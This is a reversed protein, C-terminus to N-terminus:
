SLEELIDAMTPRDVPNDALCPRIVRSLQQQKRLLNVDQMRTGVNPEKGTAMELLLVGFSYVDM